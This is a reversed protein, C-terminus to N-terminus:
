ELARNPNNRSFQGFPKLQFTIYFFSSLYMREHASIHVTIDLSVYHEEFRPQVLEKNPVWFIKKQVFLNRRTIMWLPKRKSFCAEVIDCYLSRILFFIKGPTNWSEFVKNQRQLRDFYKATSDWLANRRHEVERKRLFMNEMFQGSSTPWPKSSGGRPM